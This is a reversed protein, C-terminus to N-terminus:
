IETIIFGSPEKTGGFTAEMQLRLSLIFEPESVDRKCSLKVSAILDWDEL